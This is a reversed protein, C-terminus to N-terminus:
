CCLMSTVPAAFGSPRPRGGSQVLKRTAEFCNGLRETGWGGSRQFPAGSGSVFTSGEPCFCQARAPPEQSPLCAGLTLKILVTAQLVRRPLSCGAQLPGWTTAPGTPLGFLRPGSGTHNVSKAEKKFHLFALASSSFRVATHAGHHGDEELAWSQAHPHRWFDATSARQSGPLSAGGQSARAQRGETGRALVRCATSVRDIRLSRIFVHAFSPCKTTLPSPAFVLM